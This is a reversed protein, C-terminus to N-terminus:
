DSQYYIYELAVLTNPGTFMVDAIQTMTYPLNFETRKRYDQLMQKLDIIEKKRENKEYTVDTDSIYNDLNSQIGDHIKSFM